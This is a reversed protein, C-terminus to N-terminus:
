CKKEKKEKKIFVPGTKGWVHIKCTQFIGRRGKNCGHDVYNWRQYKDNCNCKPSYRFYSIAKLISSIKQTINTRGCFLIIKGRSM